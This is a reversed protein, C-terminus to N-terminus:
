SLGDWREADQPEERLEARVQDARATLAAIQRDTDRIDRELLERQKLLIMLEVSDSVASTNEYRALLAAQAQESIM